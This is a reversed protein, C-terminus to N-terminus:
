SGREGWVRRFEKKKVEPNEWAGNPDNRQKGQESFARLRTFPYRM